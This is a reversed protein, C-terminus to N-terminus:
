ERNRASRVKNPYDEDLDWAGQSNGTLDNDEVVGGGGGLVQLATQNGYIRNHSLTPKSGSCIAVGPGANAFIDNDKLTGLGKPFINVGVDSNDHITNRRLTPESGAQIVIGTNNNTIENGELTGRAEQFFWIGAEHSDHIKNGRLRPDAGTGIVVCPTSHSTIDCGELELRGQTINVASWLRETAVLRLTLNAVKGIDAKFLVTHADQARIEIDSVLGDGIIELPKDIVLNEQYLGPRVLIRDGPKAAEIAAAVTVFDGRQYPDVVHTPPEIKATVGPAAAAGAPQSQVAVDGLPETSSRGLLRLVAAALQANGVDRSAGFLDVRQISALTRDGGLDLDPIDCDDFRVPILWPDDPRRLRLQDIALRIEENQYSKVRAVSRRSFCAIFVLANDTIARRIKVRWDEGPWLAATDRWVPVGAAELKRQLRDVEHSDERVYSIFAHGATEVV